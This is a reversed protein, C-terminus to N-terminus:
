GLHRTWRGERLQGAVTLDENLIVVDARLGPALDGRDTLGVARAPITSAARLAAAPDLGLHQVAQRVAEGLVITSGAVAGGDALRATGERVEVRLGGLEYDGDGVGAAAMADTVLALREPGMAATAIRGSAPHVHVQDNILEVTVRDDGLLAGIPGPTRHHLAPMANFLHTAVRAGADLAAQTQAYTAETHGVAVTVGADVARRVLELAGPREPALTIMRLHGDAAARLREFEAPDPDRLQTPDHAGCRAEALYPGELHIGAVHGATADAALSRVQHLLDEASATVLSALTSTTGSGLHPALAATTAQTRAEGFDHGAGGHCHIDVLGPAVWRGAVDVTAAAPHAPQQAASGLEAVRGQRLRLWGHHVTAATVIRANTLLVDVQEAGFGTATTSM